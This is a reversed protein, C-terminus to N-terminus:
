GKIHLDYNTLTGREGTGTITFREITVSGGDVSYSLPISGEDARSTGALLQEAAAMITAAQRDGLEDIRALAEGDGEAYRLNLLQFELDDIVESGRTYFCLFHASREGYLVFYTYYCRDSKDYFIQFSDVRDNIGLVTDDMQMGGEVNSSLLLIDTLLERTGEATYPYQKRAQLPQTFAPMDLATEEVPKYEFLGQETLLWFAAVPNMEEEDSLDALAYGCAAKGAGTTGKDEHLADELICSATATEDLQYRGLAQKVLPKADAPMTEVPAEEESAQATQAAPGTTATPDEAAPGGREMSICLLMVLAILALGVPLFRAIKKMM